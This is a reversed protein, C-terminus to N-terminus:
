ENSDNLKRPKFQLKEKSKNQTLNGVAPHTKDPGKRVLLGIPFGVDFDSWVQKASLVKSYASFVKPFCGNNGIETM